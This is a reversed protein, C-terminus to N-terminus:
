YADSRKIRNTEGEWGQTGMGTSEDEREFREERGQGRTGMRADSDNSDGRGRTRDEREFRKFRGQGWTGDEREFRKERM